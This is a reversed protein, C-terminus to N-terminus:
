TLHGRQPNVSSRIEWLGWTTVSMSMSPAALGMYGSGFHWIMFASLAGTVAEIIPYRPSIPAKCASCQGRLFLYSIVPINELESIQHQCHPCRSRPVMLNYRDTHPLDKGCESAVYNDSERQMMKPLRYIVVNLFSGILLGIVAFFLTSVIDDPLTFFILDFM